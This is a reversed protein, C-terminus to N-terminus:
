AQGFVQKVFPVTLRRQEALSAQDLMELKGFLGSMDRSFHKLMYSAVNDPLEFGRSQARLQLAQQIGQDNLAAVKLVPGWNFRSRLDELQLTLENPPLDAAFVLQKGTERVKNILDFLKEQWEMEDAILQVDDVCILDIVELGDLLQPSYEILQNLPLYSVTFQRDSALQCAAQLLHSKGTFHEGWLFLQKEGTMQAANNLLAIVLENDGAIFNEFTHSAKLQLDLALQTTM